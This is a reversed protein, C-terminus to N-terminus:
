YKNVKKIPAPLIIVNGSSTKEVAEDPFGANVAAIDITNIKGAM